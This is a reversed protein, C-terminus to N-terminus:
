TDISTIFLTSFVFLRAKYGKKLPFKLTKGNLMSLKKQFISEKKKVINHFYKDM